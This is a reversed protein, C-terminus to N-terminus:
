KLAAEIAATLQNLHFPKAVVGKFGYEAYNAMVADNAYGSFVIARVGPDLERLRAMAERGGMGGPVTLDMIVVDFPKNNRLSERYREVARAGNEVLEVRYGRRRLMTGVTERVDREDDMVLITAQSAAPGKEDAQAEISLDNCAPLYVTFTTGAGPASEVTIHGDHKRIISYTVALGLGSGKQKTTYYPDFIKDIHERPIGIGSDRVSLRIYRGPKLAPVKQHASDDNEARVTIAGGGPMAQDANIVLNNIVQAIQGADAVVPWLDPPLEVACTVGSGRLSFEVAERVVPDVAIIKKVPAGGRSFTLLQQTLNQARLSAREAVELQKYAVSAPDIDLMSLSVNGMIGVLLNNFDHAIGGALIGLSELKQARILDDELRKRDTIDRSNVIVNVSGEDTAVSMGVVELIRWSGDKHRFRFEASDNRGPDQVANRFVESTAALDAPHVLDFANVGILEAPRYGLVREVSPSEYQITGESSLVTIIDLGNEILSQFHKATRAVEQEARQRQDIETLLLANASELEAGRELVAQEAQRRSVIEQQLQANMKSLEATYRMYYLVIPAVILPIFLGDIAGIMLLSPSFAGYWLYSQITNAAATFLESFVVSLLVFNGMTLPRQRSFLADFLSKMRMM